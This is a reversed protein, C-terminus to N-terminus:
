AAKKAQDKATSAAAAIVAQTGELYRQTLQAARELSVRLFEGQIQAVENWDVTRTLAKFVEVNHRTQENVLDAFAQGLEATGEASRRAVAREIEATAGFTRRAHEFGRRATDEAEGIAERTADVAKDAARRGIEAVNDAAREAQDNRATQAM